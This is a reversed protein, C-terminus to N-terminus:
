PHAFNVEPSTINKRPVGNLQANKSASSWYVDEARWRAGICLIPAKPM